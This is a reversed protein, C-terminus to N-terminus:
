NVKFMNATRVSCPKKPSTVSQISALAPQGSCVVADAAFAFQLGFSSTPLGPAGRWATFIRSCVIPYPCLSNAPPGDLRFHRRGSTISAWGAVPVLLETLLCNSFTPLWARSLGRTKPKACSLTPMKMSTLLNKPLLRIEKSSSSM